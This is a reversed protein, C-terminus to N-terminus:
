AFFKTCVGHVTKLGGVELFNDVARCSRSTIIEKQQLASRSLSVCFKILISCYFRDLGTAKPGFLKPRMLSTAAIAMAHPLWDRVKIPVWVRCGQREKNKLRQCWGTEWKSQCEDEAAQSTKTKWDPLWERVILSGCGRCDPRERSKLRLQRDKGESSCPQREKKRLKLLGNARRKNKAKEM